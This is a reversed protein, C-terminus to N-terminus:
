EKTVHLPTPSNFQYKGTWVITDPCILRKPAQEELATIPEITADAATSGILTGLEIGAGAGYLCPTLGINITITTGILTAPGNKTGELWHVELTGGTDTATNVSCEEWALNEIALVVTEAAGGAKTIKGEMLSKKCTNNISMGGATDKFLMATVVSAQFATNVGLKNAGKYLATASASGAMGWLSIAAAAVAAAALIRSNRM